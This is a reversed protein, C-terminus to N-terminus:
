KASLSLTTAMNESIQHFCLVFYLSLLLRFTSFPWMFLLFQAHPVRLEHGTASFHSINNLVFKIICCYLVCLMRVFENFIEDTFHGFYSSIM